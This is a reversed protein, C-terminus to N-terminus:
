DFLPMLLSRHMSDEGTHRGLIGMLELVRTLPKIFSGINHEAHRGSDAVSVHRLACQM